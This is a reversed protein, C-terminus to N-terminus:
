EQSDDQTRKHAQLALGRQYVDRRPWQTAKAIEHSLTRLHKSQTFGLLLLADIDAQEVLLPALPAVMLVIEGRLGREAQNLDSLVERVSGRIIEEHMKTLERAIVVQCDGMIEYIDLLSAQLRKATDFFVLSATQVSLKQLTQRRAMKKAPLFGAFLFQDCGLGGCVVASMLASAGPIAIVTIGHEIAARVLRYGPDSVLPTGADSILAISEGQLLRAILAPVRQQANHEHYSSKATRIGYHSLLKASHRTDECLVHTVSSLVDLARLSIDRLNGIPTSVIYLGAPLSTKHIRLGFGSQSPLQNFSQNDVCDSTSLSPPNAM